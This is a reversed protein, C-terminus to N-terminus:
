VVRSYHGRSAGNQLYRDFVAAVARVLLRGRPTVSLWQADERVLGAEVLPMLAARESAFYGDFDILHSESIAEKSLLCQCMLSMIVERRVIDDRTLQVGRATPLRGAEVARYYDDLSQANQAYTMGVQSIASVGLGILDCDAHTSYGQFNRHLRGQTQARVLADHELAFHDMGIYVYGAETLRTVAEGMIRMRVESNPLAQADIRRQPKFREPLHAYHYLAVRDPALALVRDLTAAFSQPTQWPLGYILDLNVSEFGALRAAEVTTATLEFDQVRNVAHQVKADFDQVGISIRNFGLRGLTRIKEPSASRPDVEIGLEAASALPFVALLRQMLQTLENESLYTPTGGGLHLQQVPSAHGLRAAVTQAEGILADVYRPVRGHDRTVVKNCACYYCVSECFPLHVYLSLAMPAMAQGRQALAQAYAQADFGAHFRDATPYSTYRPGPQGLSRLLEPAPLEIACIENM